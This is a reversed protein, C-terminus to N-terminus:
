SAPKCAAGIYMLSRDDNIVAQFSGTRRYRWYASIYDFLHTGFLNFGKIDSGTFGISHLMATLQEPDIFKQWDHVGRPIERLWDELLWILILKAKWTRNITDFCFWGGPRLVRYIETLTKHLDAVHELVDVCIVVDFSCDSYPLAEALGCRYDIQLSHSAAHAQAATICAQSQDLGAVQCGRQALFECSFGGGCGVDLVKLNSWEAIHRDFYAFRPSNLHYLAFIKSQPNWWQLASCDYFELDNKM